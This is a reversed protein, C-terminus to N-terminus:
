VHARGIEFITEDTSVYKDYYFGRVGWVLSLATLLSTNDTFIYIHSKPRHSALRYATYGSNTMSIIAKAGAQHAMQCATFCISDTIYTVNKKEPPHEKWYLKDESEARNIIRRMIEIVKVPYKGVSTEASLMVADAGDMVANAVDNVEARTPAYNMIMSEMMQTAIIVPKGANICKTVIMKQLVPVEELPMEVGLDGRAVMVGDTVEIIKDIERVAEPKEIKAIVRAKKGSSRIIDKLEVIDTVTRVFSLGIWDFDNELAFELDRLDKLTLSPLSVKTNPLNVGKKSSLIGGNIITTKVEDKGNTETVKLSIKGDDILVIEGVKVDSPFQEYTIYVRHNDGECEKTTIVLENGSVLEASNNKMIGIRLKPGQLDALIGIHRNLDKNLKRINDVTLSRFLM